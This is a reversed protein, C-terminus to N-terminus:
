LQKGRIIEYLAQGGFFDQKLTEAQKVIKESNNLDGLMTRIHEVLKDKHVLYSDWDETWESPYKFASDYMETYSLRDPVLPAAGVLAGEYCSIGLTEQQNASFVIKSRSLLMHYEDKSLQTEQAVVFQAEPISKGLDKFIDVQKEPAVRHPFLVMPMKNAPINYDFLTDEMYEMPWGVRHIKDKDVDPFSDLFLDIHFDTAFFNHDFTEFMSEEALRVWKADGILRGLFDAPDYSGAHWMGGIQIDVGLLEAMYKLQLVTPNWADTYLFYDGHQVKGDAFMQSITKLQESKWYNTGSFNLFAGPTTDQPADEPGTIIEVDLGAERMQTPLHKKWQATYRTEVPELEVLFVKM